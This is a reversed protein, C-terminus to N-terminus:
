NGDCTLNTGGNVEPVPADTCIEGEEWTDNCVATNACLTPDPDGDANDCSSGPQAKPVCTGSEPTIGDDGVCVFEPSCRTATNDTLVSDCADGGVHDRGIVRAGVATEPSM